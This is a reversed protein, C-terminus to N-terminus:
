PAPRKESRAELRPRIPGARPPFNYRATAFCAAAVPPSSVAGCRAFNQSLAQSRPDELMRRVHADLVQPEVLSGDRAAALLPEDPISSWLFFSLRSALEYGGLQERPEAPPVSIYIFKPSALAAAVVDKMAASFSSGQELRQAFFGHYRRVDAESLRGEWRDDFFHIEKPTEPLRSVGPHASILSDWWTTGSRATGVGVYDPPAPTWGDPAVPPQPLPDTTAPM